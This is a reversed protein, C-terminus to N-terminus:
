KIRESIFLVSKRASIREISRYSPNQIGGRDRFDISNSDINMLTFNGGVRRSKIFCIVGLYKVKDYRKFGHVKGTPIRTESRVGRTLKRSQKPVCRKRYLINSQEFYLGGSAIVCADLYHAKKVVLNERSAKTAFGFTEIADPYRKLLMSGIISIQTAYRLNGRRKGKLKLEVNLEYKKKSM